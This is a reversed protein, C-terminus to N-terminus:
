SGVDSATASASRTARHLEPTPYGRAIELTLETEVVKFPTSGPSAVVVDV